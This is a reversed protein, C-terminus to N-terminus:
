LCLYDVFSHIFISNYKVFVYVIYSLTLIIFILTAYHSYKIVYKLLHKGESLIYCAYKQSEIKKFLSYVKSVKMIKLFQLLLSNMIMDNPATSIVEFEDDTILNETHMLHSVSDADMHEMLYTYYYSIVQSPLM